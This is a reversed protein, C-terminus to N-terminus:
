VGGLPARTAPARLPEQASAACSRATVAPMGWGVHGSWVARAKGSPAGHEVLLVNPQHSAELRFDSWHTRAVDLSLILRNSPRLAVGLGYAVPLHMDLTEHFPGTAATVPASGDALTVSLASTQTHTVKATFPTRVVGGLSLQPTIAWLFGATANFGKFAFDEDIRGQSTFSVLRNGSVV